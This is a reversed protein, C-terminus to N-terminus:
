FDLVSCCHMNQSDQLVLIRYDWDAKQSLLDTTQVGWTCERTALHSTLPLSLHEKQWIYLIILFEIRNSDNNLLCRPGHWAEEEQQVEQEQGVQHQALDEEQQAGPYHQLFLLLLSPHWHIPDFLTITLNTNNNNYQVEEKIMTKIKCQIM